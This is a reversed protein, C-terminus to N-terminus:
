MQQERFATEAPRPCGCIGCFNLTSLNGCQPCNWTEVTPRKKGCETCFNLSNECGCSCAWNGVVRPIYVTQVQDPLTVICFDHSSSRFIIIFSVAFMAGIYGLWIFFGLGIVLNDESAVGAMIIADYIGHIIIPVILSLLTNIRYSKKKGTLQAYKAKSYFFGMFVAFCAHGPVATLMRLIATGVGNTFVYLVNELAAFGLSVFVSYVIADYSHDFNKNKWTILRLVFYKGLEEAPGVILMTFFIVNLVEDYPIAQDLIYQGISEIITATVTTGMGAFFLGILLGKPEKEKKDKFYILALLGIVPILSLAILM